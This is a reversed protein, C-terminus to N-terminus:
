AAKSNTQEARVAAVLLDIARKARETANSCVVPKFVSKSVAFTLLWGQAPKSNCRDDM